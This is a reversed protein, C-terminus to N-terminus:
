FIVILYISIIFASVILSNECLSVNGSLNNNISCIDINTLCHKHLYDCGKGCVSYSTDNICYPFNIRCIIEKLTVGCNPNRSFPYGIGVAELQIIKELEQIYADIM